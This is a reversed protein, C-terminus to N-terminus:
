MMFQEYECSSYLIIIVDIMEKCVFALCHWCCRRGRHVQYHCLEDQGELTLHLGRVAQRHPGHLQDLGQHLTVVPAISILEDPVDLVDVGPQLRLKRVVVYSM